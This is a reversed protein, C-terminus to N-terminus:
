SREFATPVFGVGNPGFYPHSTLLDSVSLASFCPLLGEEGTPMDARLAVLVARLRRRLHLQMVQNAKVTYRPGCKVKKANAAGTAWRGVEDVFKQLWMLMEAFCPLYHRPSHGTFHEARQRAPPVGVLCFALMFYIRLGASSVKTGWCVSAGGLDPTCGSDSTGGSCPAGGNDSGNVAPDSSLSIEPILFGRDRAAAMFSPWWTFPGRQGAAECGAWVNTSTDKDRALNLVVLADTAEAHVTSGKFHSARLTLWTALVAVICVLRIVESDGEVSLREWEDVM